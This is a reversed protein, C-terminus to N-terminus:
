PLLGGTMGAFAPIWYCHEAQYSEVKDLIPNAGGILYSGLSVHYKSHLHSFAEAPATRLLENSSVKVADFYNEVTLKHSNSPSM